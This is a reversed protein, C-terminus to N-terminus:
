QHLLDLVDLDPDGVGLGLRQKEFVVEDLRVLRAEVDYQAVVLAERVHLEADIVLERPEGEVAARAARGSAVESRERAGPRHAVREILQLLEEADAVAAVAEEGVAAA